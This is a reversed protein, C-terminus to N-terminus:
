AAGAGRDEVGIRRLAAVEGLRRLGPAAVDQGVAAAALVDPQVLGRGLGLALDQVQLGEALAALQAQGQDAEELRVVGQGREAQRDGGPDSGLFGHPREFAQARDVAAELLDALAWM